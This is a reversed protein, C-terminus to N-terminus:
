PFLQFPRNLLYHAAGSIALNPDDYLPAPRVADYRTNLRFQIVSLGRGLSTFFTGPSVM